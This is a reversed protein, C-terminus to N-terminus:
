LLRIAPNEPLFTGFFRNHIEFDKEGSRAILEGIGFDRV